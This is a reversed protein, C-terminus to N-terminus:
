LSVNYGKRAADEFTEYARANGGGGAVFGDRKAAVVMPAQMGSDAMATDLSAAMESNDYAAAHWSPAEGSSMSSVFGEPAPNGIGLQTRYGGEYRQTNGYTSSFNEKYSQVQCWVLYLVGLTTLALMIYEYKGLMSDGVKSM